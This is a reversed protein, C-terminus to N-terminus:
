VDSKEPTSLLIYHRIECHIKVRILEIKIPSIWTKAVSRKEQMASEFDGTFEPASKAYLHPSASKVRINIHFGIHIDHQMGHWFVNHAWVRLTLKSEFYQLPMKVFSGHTFGGMFHTFFIIPLIIFLYFFFWQLIAFKTKWLYENGMLSYLM